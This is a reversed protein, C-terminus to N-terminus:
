EDGVANRVFRWKMGTPFGAGGRGRLGSKTVEEIIEDPQMQTLAKGLAQYGDRAIYEEIKLADLDQNSLVRRVQLKFFPSEEDLTWEKIAKGRALHEGVIRSVREPTVESYVARGIKPHIVTVIPESGCLGICGAKLLLVDGLKRGELEKTFADLVQNAGSSIGCTGLHVLVQIKQARRALEKQAKDRLSALGEVSSLRKM